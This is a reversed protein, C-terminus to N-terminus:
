ITQSQGTKKKGRQPSLFQDVGRPVTSYQIYRNGGRTVQAEESTSNYSRSPAGRAVRRRCGESSNSVESYHPGRMCFYIIIFFLISIYLYIFFHILRFRRFSFCTNINHIIYTITCSAALCLETYQPARCFVFRICSSYFYTDSM